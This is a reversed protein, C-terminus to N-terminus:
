PISVGFLSFFPLYVIELYFNSVIDGFSYKISEGIPQSQCHRKMPKVMIRPSPFYAFVEYMTEFTTKTPVRLNLGVFALFYNMLWSYNKYWGNISHACSFTIRSRQDSTYIDYFSWMRSWWFCSQQRQEFRVFKSRVLLIIYDFSVNM